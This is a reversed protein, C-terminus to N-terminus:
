DDQESEMPDKDSPESAMNNSDDQDLRAVRATGSFVILRLLLFFMLSVVGGISLILIRHGVELQGATASIVTTALFGVIALFVGIIEIIRMSISRLEGHLKTTESTLARNLDTKANDVAISVHSNALESVRREMGIRQSFMELRLSMEHELNEATLDYYDRRASNAPPVLSLASEISVAAKDYASRAFGYWDHDEVDEFGDGVVRVIDSIDGTGPYMELVGVALIHFAFYRYYSVHHRSLSISTLQRDKACCSDLEKLQQLVFRVLQPMLQTAAHQRRMHGLASVLMLLPYAMCPGLSQQNIALHVRSSDAFVKRAIKDWGDVSVYEKVLDADKTRSQGAWAVRKLCRFVVFSDTTFEFPMEDCQALIDLLKDYEYDDRAQLASLLLLCLDELVRGITRGSTSGGDDVRGYDESSSTATADDDSDYGGLSWSTHDALLGTSRAIECAMAAPGAMQSLLINLSDVLRGRSARARPSLDNQNFPWTTDRSAEDVFRSTLWAALESNWDFDDSEARRRLDEVFSVIDRYGVDDLRECRCQIDVLTGEVAIDQNETM